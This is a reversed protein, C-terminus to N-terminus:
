KLCFVVSLGKKPITILYNHAKQVGLIVSETRIQTTQLSILKPTTRPNFNLISTTNPQKSAQSCSKPERGGLVFGVLEVFSALLVVGLVFVVWFLREGRSKYVLGIAGGFVFFCFFRRPPSRQFDSARALNRFGTVM